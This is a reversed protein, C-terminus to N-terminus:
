RRQQARRSATAKACCPACRRLADPRRWPPRGTRAGPSTWCALLPRADTPPACALPKSSTAHPRANAACSSWRASKSGTSIPHSPVIFEIPRFVASFYAYRLNEIAQHVLNIEDISLESGDEHRLSDLSFSYKSKLATYLEDREKEFKSKTIRDTDLGQTRTKPSNM